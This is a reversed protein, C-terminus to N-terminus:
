AMSPMELESCGDDFFTASMMRMMLTLVEDIEGRGWASREHITGAPDTLRVRLAALPAADSFKAEFQLDVGDEPYPITITEEVEIGPASQVWIERGLHRVRVSDPASTFSLVLVIDHQAVKEEVGASQEGVVPSHTLRWLPLGAAAILLFAM